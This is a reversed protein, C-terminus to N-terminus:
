SLIAKKGSSVIREEERAFDISLASKTLRLLSIGLENLQEDNLLIGYDKEITRRLEAIKSKKLEM